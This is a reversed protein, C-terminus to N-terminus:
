QDKEEGYKEEELMSRIEVDGDAELQNLLARTMLDTFTEGSERAHLIARDLLTKYTVITTKDTKPGDIINRM